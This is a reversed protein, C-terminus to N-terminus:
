VGTGPEDYADTHEVSLYVDSETLNKFFTLLYQIGGLLLGFPVPLYVLYLPVRLVSSVTGLPKVTDFIYHLSLGCLAFLLASTTSAILLMVGKRPKRPLQDYLATMRIHRGRSAGYGVGVFTVFIILFQSLEEASALSTNFLNRSLVNGITLLAIAIMAYALCVEELKSIGRFLLSIVRKM